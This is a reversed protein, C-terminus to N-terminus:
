ILLFKNSKDNESTNQETFYSINGLPKIVLEGIDINKIYKAYYNEFPTYCAIIVNPRDKTPKILDYYEKDPFDCDLSAQDSYDFRVFRKHGINYKSYSKTIGDDFEM